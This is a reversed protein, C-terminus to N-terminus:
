GGEFLTCEREWQGTKTPHIYWYLQTMTQKAANWEDRTQAMAENAEARYDAHAVRFAGATLLLALIALGVLRPIGENARM